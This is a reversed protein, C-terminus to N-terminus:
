RLAEWAVRLATAIFIPTGLRFTTFANADALARHSRHVVLWWSRRLVACLEGRWALAVLAVAVLVYYAILQLELGLVPGALAGICAFLKVDGGGMAGARFLFLPIAACILCGLVSGLVAATGGLVLHTPPALVLAPLTLWNPILGSRADTFAAILTIALLAAAIFPVPM